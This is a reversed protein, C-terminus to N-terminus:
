GQYVKELEGCIQSANMDKAWVLALASELTTEKEGPVFLDPYVAFEVEAPLSNVAFSLLPNTVEVPKSSQMALGQGAEAIQATISEDTYFAQIFQKVADLKKAGNPSIWWGSSNYGQLSTPKSYAADTPVPFGGIQIKLNAPADTFAWSGAQMMAAKGTYFATNMQEATYGATNKVFLDEDRLRTFLEIGKMANPVSCYNGKNLVQKTEDASMYSQIIQMFLKEGAWDAGGAVMPPIGAAHLKGIMAEFADFTKPVETVGAKALLDTNYWFPYFFGNVPFGPVTGDASTWEALADPKIKDAVGWEKLYDTVPVIADNQLWTLSKGNLTTFLLDQEKGGALSSEYAQPLKEGINTVTVKIGTKKTFGDVWTALVKDQTTSGNSATLVTLETTQGVSTGGTPGGPGSSCAAMPFTVALAAAVVSVAKARPTITKFM